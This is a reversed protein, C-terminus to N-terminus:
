EHAPEERTFRILGRRMTVQIHGPLQLRKPHKSPTPPQLFRALRAWHEASMGQLPWHQAHWLQVLGERVICWETDMFQSAQFEIEGAVDLSRAGQLWAHGSREVFEYLERVQQATQLLRRDLNSSGEFARLFPLLQSRIRNRTYKDSTNSQDTRFDLHFEDIYKMLQKRSTSLLPHVLTLDQSLRRTPPISALGRPGSGRLLRHLMTEVVDDAHHATAIWAAHHKDAIRRLHRHRAKRLTEESASASVEDLEALRVIECPLNWRTALERVFERDADSESGRLGHDIHAVILKARKDSISWIAHLLAVSDPGGSVGIISTSDIWKELPWYRHISDNISIMPHVLDSREPM